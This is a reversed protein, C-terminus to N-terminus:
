CDLMRVGTGMIVQNILIRAMCGNLLREGATGANARWDGLIAWGAVLKRVGTGMIVEENLYGSLWEAM